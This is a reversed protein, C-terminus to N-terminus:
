ICKIKQILDATHPPIPITFFCEIGLQKCVAFEPKSRDSYENSRVYYDPRLSTILEQPGIAECIFVRDVYRIAKVMAMRTHHDNILISKTVFEDSVVSVWLEDGFERAQRLHEIHGSHLM